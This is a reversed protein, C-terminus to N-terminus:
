AEPRASSHHHIIQWTGDGMDKWVLTFRASVSQRDNEPGIEFSYMGSHIYCNDAVIQLKEETITGEPDKTLFHAFYEKAGARGQKFEGSVTPLFTADESYLEAVKGPDKTQLANNWVTFNQTIIGQNM